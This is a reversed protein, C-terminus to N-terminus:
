TTIPPSFHLHNHLKPIQFTCAQILDIQIEYQANWTKNSTILLRDADFNKSVTGL